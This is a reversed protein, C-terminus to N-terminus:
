RIKLSGVGLAQQGLALPIGSFDIEFRMFELQSGLEASFPSSIRGDLRIESKLEKEKL